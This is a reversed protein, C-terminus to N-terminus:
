FSHHFYIAEEPITSLLPECEQHPRWVTKNVKNIPLQLYNFLLYNAMNQFSLAFLAAELFCTFVSVPHFTNTYSICGVSLAPFCSDSSFPPSIHLRRFPCSFLYGLFLAPFCTVSPFPLFVLLQSFARSAHLRCFPRPFLYGLFLAPFCTVSPFPPFVLVWSFARPFLYELFLAPFCTVSLFPPSVLIWSFARSFM